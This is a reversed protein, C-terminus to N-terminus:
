KKSRGLSNYKVLYVLMGPIGNIKSISLLNEGSVAANDNTDTQFHISFLPGESM